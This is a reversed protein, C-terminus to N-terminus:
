TLKVRALARAQEARPDALARQSVVQPQLFFEFPFVGTRFGKDLARSIEDGRLGKVTIFLRFNKGPLGAQVHLPKGRLDPNDIVAREATRRTIDIRTLVM